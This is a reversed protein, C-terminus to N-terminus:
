LPRTPTTLMLFRCLPLGRIDQIVAICGRATLKEGQEAQPRQRKDYPTRMVIVPFPGVGQPRYIDARLVISDRM